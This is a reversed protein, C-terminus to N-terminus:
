LVKKLYYKLIDILYQFSFFQLFIYRHIFNESIFFLNPFVFFYIFISAYSVYFTIRIIKPSREYTSFLKKSFM